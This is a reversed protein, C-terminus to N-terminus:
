EPGTGLENQLVLATKLYPRAAPALQDRKVPDSWEHRANFVPGIGRLIPLYDRMIEGYTRPLAQTSPEANASGPNCILLCGVCAHM